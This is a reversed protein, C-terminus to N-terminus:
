ATFATVRSLAQPNHIVQTARFLIRYYENISGLAMPINILDFVGGIKAGASEGFVVSIGDTGGLAAVYVDGDTMNDNIVVPVGRYQITNFTSDALQSYNLVSNDKLVQEVIDYTAGNAIIVKQGDSKCLRLAKSIDGLAGKAGAKANSQGAVILDDLGNFNTGGDIILGEMKEMAARLMAKLVGAEASGGENATAKTDWCMPVSTEFTDYSFLVPGASIDSATISTTCDVAGVTPYAYIRNVQIQPRASVGLDWIAMTQNSSKLTDVLEPYILKEKLSAYQSYSM